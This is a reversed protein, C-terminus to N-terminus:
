GAPRPGHESRLRGTASTARALAAADAYGSARTAAEACGCVVTNAAGARAAPSARGGDAAQCHRPSLPGSHAVRAITVPTDSPQGASAAIVVDGERRLRMRSAVPTRM